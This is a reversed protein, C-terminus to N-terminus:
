NRSTDYIREPSKPFWPFFMSVRRQYERYPAGKHQVMVKETEPIGTVKILFYSMLLVSFWSLAGWSVGSVAFAMGAWFLWECFYNPHRSFAWLGSDMVPPKPLPSNRYQNMQRDAITEGLIALGAILIGLNFFLNQDPNAKMFIAFPATLLITGIAQYMFFRYMKSPAHEGWERIFAAYRRDEGGRFTRLFLYSGLRIGWICFALAVLIQPTTHQSYGFYLILISIPISFAWISDVWSAKQTVQYLVWAGSFLAFNVLIISLVIM